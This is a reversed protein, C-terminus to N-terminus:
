SSFSCHDALWYIRLSSAVTLANKATARALIYHSPRGARRVKSIQTTARADRGDLGAGASELPQEHKSKTMGRCLKGRKNHQRADWGEKRIAAAIRGTGTERDATRYRRNGATGRSVRIM